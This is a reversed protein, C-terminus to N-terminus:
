EVAADATVSSGSSCRRPGPDDQVSDKTNPSHQCHKSVEEHHYGDEMELLQVRGGIEEDCGQGTSVEPHSDRHHGEAHDPGDLAAPVKSSAETSEVGATIHCKTIRREEVQAENGDVPVDSNSVRQDIGGLESHRHRSNADADGPNQGVDTYLFFATYAAPIGWGAVIYRFATRVTFKSPYLLPDCIACHRDISIFCLHCISILCFLTDLYTHLRCLFDGFFWCSEVSRVMSLPLVLLGLLMDALALSLLLFNTPTHLVKFYSVAFVVFLNGLVTILVGVTCALYIAVMSFPMVVCSLLFDTTAMSLILFNTPSHLQKFHAISIIVVMNGLMTMVIAGIMVLSMACIVFMSREKKLCSNNAVAFCFQVEPPNWLDPSNM